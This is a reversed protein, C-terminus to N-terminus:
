LQNEAGLETAANYQNKKKKKCPKQPMGTLRPYMYFSSEKEGEKKEV